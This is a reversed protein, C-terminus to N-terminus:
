APRTAGTWRARAAETAYGQGQSDPHLAWAVEVPASPERSGEVQVLAVTGVVVGTGRVQVAWWGCPSGGAREEANRVRARAIRELAAGVCRTRRRCSGLFRVVDDRSYM